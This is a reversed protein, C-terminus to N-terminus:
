EFVLDHTFVRTEEDYEVVLPQYAPYYGENVYSVNAAKVGDFITQLEHNGSHFHGSVFLKPHVREIHKALVANGTDDNKWPGELIAGLKGINPSDHSMLIDVGEPIQSFKKDLAEDNIMFAWNGFISCYPTGFITLSDIGDSVPFEFEYMDHRLIKLRGECKMELETLEARTMRELGFDHNGPTLIVKSWPNAFPLTKVWEAFTTMLWEKQFSYYHDHAPCVDGPVLFLDFKEKIYPLQGHFDSSAIINM